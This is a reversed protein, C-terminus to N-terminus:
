KMMKDFVTNPLMKFETVVEGDLSQAIVKVQIKEPPSAAATAVPSASSAGQGHSSSASSTGIKESLQQMDDEGGDRPEAEVILVGNQLTWGLSAPTDGARLKRGRHKFTAADVALSNQQCWAKMMKDFVTSPLMKFETVVEGDESQATVKVQIKEPPSAAATAVPSAPSAGQGHSSTAPSTDIKESLQQMDDEGGDRPEAEITLVGSQLTWGLSAPTDGARLKRGQHKFTAADVALSNQQCWAKM